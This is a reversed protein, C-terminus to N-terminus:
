EVNHIKKITEIAGAPDNKIASAIVIGMKMMGQKRGTDRGFVYGVFAMLAGVTLTILM